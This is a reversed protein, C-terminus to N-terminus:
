ESVGPEARFVEIHEEIGKLNKAGLESWMCLGKVADCLEKTAVVTGPDALDTIRSALNVPRGYWDGSRNLAPGYAAGAHLDPFEATERAREVLDFTAELLARADSSVFMAADGITKVLRVPPIACESALEGLRGAIGGVAEAPLREGLSTFSTMDAFSVAVDSAGPVEGAQLQAQTIAQHRLRERMHRRLLYETLPTVESLWERAAEANTLGLEEESVGAKIFTEQFLGGMADAAQAMGRGLVRAVELMSGEDLGLNHFRAAIRAVELDSEDCGQEDADVAALGGARVVAQFFDLPVGAKDAVERPTYRAEGGLAREAPFIVLRDTEVAERLEDLSAGSEYLRRLLRERAERADGEVGRLLGEAAFDPPEGEGKM